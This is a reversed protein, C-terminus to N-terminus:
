KLIQAIEKVEKATYSFNTKSSLGHHLIILKDYIQAAQKETDIQGVYYKRNNVVVFIQWKTGNISVGRYKSGRYLEKEMSNRIQKKANSEILETDDGIQKEDIYQLASLMCKDRKGALDKTKRISTM